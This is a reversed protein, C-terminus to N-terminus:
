FVCKMKKYLSQAADEGCLYKVIEFSFPLAAGAGFATIVNDSTEVPNGTYEGGAFHKEFGDFCTAKKGKLIGLKGLIYPAACIAAVLKGNENAYKVANIVEESKELNEAGPMGGPLIVSFLDSYDMENPLIDAEVAIGHTGTVFKGTVGVTKCEVGARKLVDVPTLAELEEFGDALFVYVM